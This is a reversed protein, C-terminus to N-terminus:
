KRAPGVAAFRTCWQELVDTDLLQKAVPVDVDLPQATVVIERHDPDDEPTFFWHAVDVVKVSLPQEGVDFNLREGVRPATLGNVTVTVIEDTDASVLIALTYRVPGDLTPDASATDSELTAMAGDERPQPSWVATEDLGLEAASGLEPQHCM